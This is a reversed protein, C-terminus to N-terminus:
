GKIGSMSLGQVFYRQLFIFILMPPLTALASGAMVMGYQVSTPSGVIGSPSQFLFSCLFLRPGTQRAGAKPNLGDKLSSPRDNDLEASCIRRSVVGAGQM